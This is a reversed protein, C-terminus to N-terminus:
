TLRQPSASRKRSGSRKIINEARKLDNPTNINFFTQLRLDLQELVLTSVYRVGRLNEIMSHLDLKGDNLAKKAAKSASKTHYAAQLPEINQNPWRPIAAAKEACVDLLFAAVRSSIFPTDCPLLLSYDGESCEFGTLAGVLPSRVDLRDVVIRAHDGAVGMFGRKQADSAVVVIKEDVIESIGELVHLILAKGALEVLGKDGGFRKSTGGALVIASTKLVLDEDCALRRLIRTARYAKGCM